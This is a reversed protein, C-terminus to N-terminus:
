CCCDRMIVILASSSSFSLRNTHSSHLCLKPPTVEFEDADDDDIFENLSVVLLTDADVDRVPEDIGVEESSANRIGSAESPVCASCSIKLKRM